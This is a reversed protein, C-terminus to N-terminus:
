MRWLDRLTSGLAVFGAGIGAVAFVAMLPTAAAVILASILVRRM